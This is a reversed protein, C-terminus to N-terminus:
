DLLKIARSKISSCMRIELYQIDFMQHITFRLTFRLLSCQVQTHFYCSRTFKLSFENCAVPFELMSCKKSLVRRLRNDRSKLKCGLVFSYDAFSAVNELRRSPTDYSYSLIPLLLRLSSLLSCCLRFLAVFYSPFDSEM